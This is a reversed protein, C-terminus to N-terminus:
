DRLIVVATTEKKTFAHRLVESFSYFPGRFSGLPTFGIRLVGEPQAAGGSISHALIKPRGSLPELEGCLLPVVIRAILKTSQEEGFVADQPTAVKKNGDHAVRKKGVM